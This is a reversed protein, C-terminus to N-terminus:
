HEGEAPAEGGEGAAAVAEAAAAEAAAAIGEDTQSENAIVLISVRRNQPSLPDDPDRPVRDALGRVEAIQDPALLPEMTRRVANARDTSLEWNSYEPDDTSYPSADTHGEIAVKNPMGSLEDAIIEFLRLASETPDISGVEFFLSGEGEVLEIRLGEGTITIEINQQLEALEPVQAIQGELTEKALQFAAREEGSMDVVVHDPGMGGMESMFGIPDQFYGAVAKKIEESQGVIWMVLFFAMMATVFDAYAVKWAGGHHGGHGKGKSVVIVTPRDSM